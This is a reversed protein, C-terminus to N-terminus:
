SHLLYCNRFVAKLFTFHYPIMHYSWIGEFKLPQRGCIKSPVNQFAKDWIQVQTYDDFLIYLFIRVDFIDMEKQTIM